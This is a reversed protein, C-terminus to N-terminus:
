NTWANGIQIYTVAGDPGRAFDLGLTMGFLKPVKFRVGVGAASVSREGTIGRIDARAAGVGGFALVDWRSNIPWRYEGEVSAAQEGPYRLAAVGRLAIYPRLYFPPHGYSLDLRTRLGFVGNGIFPLYTTWKASVGQAEFSAGLAQPYITLGISTANGANPTFVNDRTDRLWAFGVGTITATRPEVRLEAPAASNFDVAASASFVRLTVSNPGSGLTKEGEISGGDARLSFGLSEGDRPSLGPYKLHLEAWGALATTRWTGDSWARSDFAVAGRSGGDTWLGGVGYAQPKSPGVANSSGDRMWVSGALLGTGLAPETIPYPVILFRGEETKSGTSDTIVNDADTAKTASAANGVETGTGTSNTVDTAVQSAVAIPDFAGLVFLVAFVQVRWGASVIPDRPLPVICIM